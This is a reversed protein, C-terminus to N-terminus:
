PSGAKAKACANHFMFGGGAGGLLPPVGAPWNGEQSPDPTPQNAVLEHFAEKRREAHMTVMFGGGAGGLLPAARRPWNGEQSPDPTPKDGVDVPEHLAGVVKKGHMPDM